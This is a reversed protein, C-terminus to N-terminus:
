RQKAGPKNAVQGPSLVGLYTFLDSIEDLSLTNLLGDPMASVNSAVVEDVQDELVAVKRGDSQLIVIEGGAGAAVIGTYTKGDTTVVTKSAYQDSVVHSPFLISELIEKRMFRKSLTTLDPGLREGKEGMRHCKVCQAKAFVTAGRELSGSRGEDSQLHTMLEAVTWKTGEAPKPLSAAPRDPFKDAYWTQWAALQKPVSDGDRGPREGTWWEMLTLAPQAGKDGLALGRLITQRYAEPDDEPVQDVTALKSMVETAFPGDVIALSKVLYPWNDGNPQQALGVAVATRREPDRDYIERLYAFADERGSRALVAVIGVKLKIASDENVTAIQTDMAVLSEMIEDDLEKPLKYLAGLAANPWEAGKTLVLRAEEETLGKAFDRAVNQTYQAYANGAKHKQAAEYFQMLEFKQDATWGSEIFRLHLALHLKEVNEVDSKLYALYDDIIADAQLFALLRVLERNILVNGAPFEASLQDRLEPLEDAKLQGRIIAVQMVRLLDVFDQDSVFEKMTASLRDIVAVANSPSPDSTMLALGGQVQVRHSRSALVKGKWDAVPMSELLRRAAWALARDDTGLLKVVDSAPPAQGARVLAECAKRRVNADNDSLLETLRRETKEDPHLGMLDAAKARVVESKERSLKIMLDSQPTPGFLHMLDMARARYRPPNATSIAVGVVNADWQPGLSRKISAIKQRSWASHIQPQRIAATMGKGLNSVEEPVEGKWSVRYVGGSTGRGGTVYYLSGDPGVDVDTVNLPKGALFVESQATYTAGQRKMKVCLIRGESWDALFMAGHYRPPFAFHDYIVGGTPSGRGTEGIAPVTDLFYNPWWSWGSRWGFEAGALAHFVQTPRAWPTGDDTEMDSEHFFLEGEQNFFLDYSNRIGGAFHQVVTGETDTRLIVGGPAKVGVAHGGPDEYRPVLDGEYSQKYPSAPDVDGNVGSHNGVTVYLLGDPGLALGHPGHEGMTGKFKLITTIDELTGDRDADNLRYLAAGDPGDATVFVMGNLPLIGQVNKVLDCYVRVKDLKGNKQSDYILLLPGGERSAIIHGFENFAMGILSGTDDPDIVREVTFEPAVSFRGSKHRDESAVGDEMDWPATDGFRGFVQARTWRTDNYVASNWMPLATTNVVWAGDTSYSFWKKDQQILVRAALGATSGNRNSVKIAITNKGRELLRTIDYDNLNKALEGTGVRRGNVFLEYADDATITVQGATPATLLFSRRFYASGEPVEDKKHEPSWIWQAEQAPSASAFVSLACWALVGGVFWLLWHRAERALCGASLGREGDM